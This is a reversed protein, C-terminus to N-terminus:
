RNIDIYSDVFEVAQAQHFTALRIPKQAFRGSNLKQTINRNRENRQVSSMWELERTVRKRGDNETETRDRM